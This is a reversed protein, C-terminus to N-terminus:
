SVKLIKELERGSITEESLLREAILKLYNLNKLLISKSDKYSNEIILNVEKNIYSEYGSLFKGNFTRNGLSSMGYECVMQQAIETSKVLDNQAGTSIENFIIEEAARGALLTQIKQHLEQKTMLFLPPFMEWAKTVVESIYQIPAIAIVPAKCLPNCFSWVVKYALDRISKTTEIIKPEVKPIPTARDPM